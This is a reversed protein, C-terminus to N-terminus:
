HHENVIYKFINLSFYERHIFDGEGNCGILLLAILFITITMQLESSAIM